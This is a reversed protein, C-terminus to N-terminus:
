KNIDINLIFKKLVDDNFIKNININTKYKLILPAFIKYKNIDNLDYMSYPTKYSTNLIYYDYNNIENILELKNKNLNLIAIHVLKFNNHKIKLLEILKYIKDLNFNIDTSLIFIIKNNNNKLIDFLRKTARIKYNIDNHHPFTLLSLNNLAYDQDNELYNILNDLTNISWDFMTSFDKLAYIKIIAASFCNLGLSIFINKEEM